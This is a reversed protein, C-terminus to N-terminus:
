PEGSPSSTRLPAPKRSTEWDRRRAERVAEIAEEIKEIIRRMRTPEVSGIIERAVARRLLHLEAENLTLGAHYDRSM